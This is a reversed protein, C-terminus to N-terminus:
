TLEKDRLTFRNQDIRFSLFHNTLGDIAWEVDMPCYTGRLETYYKEIITVWKTIQIVQADNICFKKQNNSEVPITRVMEGPNTGYIMKIQKVGLKKEIIADFGKELTPKFVLFEDPNVAGQVVMEGLGFSSNILVM